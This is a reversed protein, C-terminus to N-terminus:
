KVERVVFVDKLTFNIGTEKTRDNLIGEITDDVQDCKPIDASLIGAHSFIPVMLGLFVFLKKM